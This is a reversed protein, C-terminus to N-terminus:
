RGSNRRQLLTRRERCSAHGHEGGAFSKRGAGGFHRIMVPDFIQCLHPAGPAHENGAAVPRVAQKGQGKDPLFLAASSLDANGRVFGADIEEKAVDDPPAFDAGGRGGTM